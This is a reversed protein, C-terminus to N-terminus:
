NFKEDEELDFHYIFGLNYLPEEMEAILVAKDDDSFPVDKLYEDRRNDLTLEQTQTTDGNKSKEDTLSEGLQNQVDSSSGEDIIDQSAVELLKTSRRWHDELKRNEWKRLFEQKGSAVRAPNYFYWEGASENDSGFAVFEDTQNTSFQAVSELRKQKRKEKKVKEERAIDKEIKKDILAYLVGEDMNSLAILSDNKKVVSIHTVFEKLIKQKREIAEFGEEDKPMTNITSDYYASSIEYEELSDYYIKALEHYSYAKQRNNNISTRVSQDFYDIAQDLYGTKMEFHAMEYYIKDKYEENKRDKLLKRFYKRIKKLDNTQTLTTSQAMNLKTHFSLEYSPNSRLVKKYYIFARGDNKLEQHIQGILFGVRGKKRKEKILPYALELNKVTAKLDDNLQEFYARMLYLSELNKRNLREKKLYDSVAQANRTESGLIFTYMLSVLAEHRAGEDKSNTNVYKFTEVANTLDYSYIRAKGVLNYADDVWKSKPHREIILSAKELCYQTQSTFSSSKVSDFPVLVPLIKNYNWKYGTKISNEIELIKEKALFYANYHATTNHFKSAVFGERQPACSIIASLLIQLLTYFRLLKM